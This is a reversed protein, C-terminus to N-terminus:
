SQKRYCTLRSNNSITMGTTNSTHTLTLVKYARPRNQLPAETFETPMDLLINKHNNEEAKQEDILM